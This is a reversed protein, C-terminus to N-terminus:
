GNAEPLVEGLSGGIWSLLAGLVGLALGAGGASQLWSRKLVGSHLLSLLYCYVSHESLSLTHDEALPYIVFKPLLGSEPSFLFSPNRTALQTLQLVM